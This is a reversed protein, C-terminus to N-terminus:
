NLQWKWVFTISDNANLPVGTFDAKLFLNGATLADFVGANTITKTANATITGSVQYTDNTVSTTQQSTTGAIRAYVPSGGTDETFLTTDTVVSSGAGTGWALNNPLTGGSNVRNTVLARGANTLVTPM